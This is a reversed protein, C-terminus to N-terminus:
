PTDATDVKDVWSNPTAAPSIGPRAQATHPPPGPLVREGSRRKTQREAIRKGFETVAWSPLGGGACAHNCQVLRHVFLEYLEPDARESASMYWGSPYIALARLVRLQKTTMSKAFEIQDTTPRAM